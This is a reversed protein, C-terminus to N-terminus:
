ISSSVLWPRYFCMLCNTSWNLCKTLASLSVWSYCGRKWLMLQSGGSLLSPPFQSQWFRWLSLIRLGLFMTFKLNPIWLLRLSGFMWHIRISMTRHNNAFLSPVRLPCRIGGPKGKGCFEEMKQSLVCQIPHKKRGPARKWIELIRWETVCFTLNNWTRGLVTINIKVFHETSPM